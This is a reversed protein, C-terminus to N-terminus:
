YWLDLIFNGIRLNEWLFKNISLTEKVRENRSHEVNEKTFLIKLVLLETSTHKPIVNKHRTDTKVFQKQYTLGCLVQQCKSYLCYNRAQLTKSYPM